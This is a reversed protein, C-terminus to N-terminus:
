CSHGGDARCQRLGWRCCKRRGGYRCYPRDDDHRQGDYGDNGRAVVQGLHVAVSSIAGQAPAEITAQNAAGISGTGTATGEFSGTEVSEALYQAVATTKAKSAAMVRPVIIVAAVLVVVVGGVWYVWKRMKKIM